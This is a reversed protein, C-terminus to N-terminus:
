FRYGVFVRLYHFGRPYFFKKQQILENEIQLRTLFIKDINLTSDLLFTPFLNMKVDTSPNIYSNASYDLGLYIRNKYINYKLGFGIGSVFDSRFKIQYDPYDLYQNGWNLFKREENLFSFYKYEFNRGAGIQGKIYFYENLYYNLSMLGLPTIKKSYSCIMSICGINSETSIKSVKHYLDMSVEIFINNYEKGLAIYQYRSDGIGQVYYSPNEAYINGIFIFFVFIILSKRLMIETM